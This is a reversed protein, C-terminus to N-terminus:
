APNRKKHLWAFVALAILQAITAGLLASGIFWTADIHRYRQSVAFLLLAFQMAVYGFNAARSIYPVSWDARNRIINLAGQALFFVGVGVRALDFPMSLGVYLKLLGYLIFVLGTLDHCIM